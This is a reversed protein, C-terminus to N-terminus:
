EALRNRERIVEVSCHAHIAVSESVSGLMMRDVGRCGHSGMVILDAGTEDWRSLDGASLEARRPNVAYVGVKCTAARLNSMATRGVSGERETAGIVAVSAPAFFSELASRARSSSSAVIPSAM